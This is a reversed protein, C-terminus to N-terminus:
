LESRGYRKIFEEKTMDYRLLWYIEGLAMLLRDAKGKDHLERHCEPCLYVTLGDKDALRRNATGHWVHHEELPTFKGCIFCRDPSKYMISM